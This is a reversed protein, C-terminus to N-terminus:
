VSELADESDASELLEASKLPQLDFDVQTVEELLQRKHKYGLQEFLKMKSIFGGQGEFTRQTNGYAEVAAKLGKGIADFREIFLLTTAYLNKAEGLIKLARQSQQAMTWSHEIAKLIAMLNLPGALIVKRAYAEEFLGPELLLANSLMAERPVYLVVFGASEKLEDQYEKAALDKVAQRLSAVYKRQRAEIADPGTEEESFWQPDFQLAKSDIFLVRKGPMLIRFDPRKRSELPVQFEFSVGSDELLRRLELEGWDGRGKNFTLASSLKTTTQVLRKLEEGILEKNTHQEKDVEEVKKKYELVAESLPKLLATVKEEIAKQRDQYEQTADEKVVKINALLFSELQQQWQKEINKKWENDKEVETKLSEKEGTLNKITEQQADVTQRLKSEAEQLAVVRKELEDSKGELKSKQEILMAKEAQLANISVNAMELSDKAAKLEQRALGLQTELQSKERQAELQAQSLATKHRGNLLLFALLGGAFFGVLGFLWETPPM